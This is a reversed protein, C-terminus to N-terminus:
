RRVAARLQASLRRAGDLRDGATRQVAADERPRRLVQELGRFIADPSTGVFIADAAAAERLEPIDTTVVPTGCAAAEAVPIGYGEYISPFAFARADAYLAPLAHDPVYGLVHCWPASLLRLGETSVSKGWGKGGVLRLEIPSARGANIREMALLLASLNKRPERTAVSLIYDTDVHTDRAPPHDFVPGLSPAIVDDCRIGYMEWVRMATGQSIAIRRAAERLSKAFWLHHGWRTAVPMSAPFIRHTLDFVTMVSPTDIARPVIAAAAWFVDLRDDRVLRPLAWRSWAPGPLRRWPSRDIRFRWRPSLPEMGPDRRLYLVFDAEPCIADLGRMLEHVYRGTGGPQGTFARGDIGIRM